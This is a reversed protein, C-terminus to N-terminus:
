PTVACDPTDFGAALEKLTLQDNCPDGVVDTTSRMSSGDLDNLDDTVGDPVVAAKSEDVANTGRRAADAASDSITRNLWTVFSVPHYHYVVGDPPLRAHSAVKPTWWLGPTIQEAVLSEIEEAPLKAFDKPARLAEAWPPEPTWESVHYTVLYRAAEGAGTSYFAKLEDRSLMGDKNSDILDNVEPADCFRGGASGDVVRWPQGPFADAPFLESKSFVEVHIQGRALDAPGATGVHGILAGAEVAEDMLVIDGDKDIPQKWTDGALWPTPRPLKLTPEDALHMYLSYFDLKREGLSVLHHLLVFNVSGIATHTAMRAAVIRGPFPAFVPDNEKAALHVGGHWLRAEGWPGVPFFGGDAKAENMEYLKKAAALLEGSERPVVPLQQRPDKPDPPKPFMYFCNDGRLKRCFDQFDFFGPDWKRQTLHYHGIFGSFKMSAPEPMTDWTQVGPSSQPYEPPLNPFLRILAKSLKRMAEYQAATYDFAKFTHGNIKCFRPTRDPGYKGSEYYHPEKAADGRNCMEVGISNNNWQAAHFAVLALDLTQYIIGDNDVIFHVSLGRENQLVDFCMAASSCGDHHLVFQSVVSKVADYPANEGNNWKSNRLAPRTMYRKTIKRQMVKSFPLDGTATRTCGPHGDTETTQCYQSHADWHPGERWNVIPADTAFAQGGIILNGSPRWM